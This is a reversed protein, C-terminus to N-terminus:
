RVTPAAEAATEACLSCRPGSWRVFFCFDSRRVAPVAGATPFSGSWGSRATNFAGVRLLTQRVESVNNSINNRKHTPPPDM